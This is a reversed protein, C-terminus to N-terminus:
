LEGAFEGSRLVRVGHRILATFHRRNDTVVIRAGALRAIEAIHADYIRGGAVRDKVAAELFLLRKEGPLPDVHFKALVEQLLRYVQQPALRYGPPLRTAVAYFELCCHWATRADRISGAAVADVIRQANRSSAGFDIYGGLLVTTDFFVPTVVAM